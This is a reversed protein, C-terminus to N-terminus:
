VIFQESAGPLSTRGKASAVWCGRITKNDAAGTVHLAPGPNAFLCCETTSESSPGFDFAVCASNNACLGACRPVADVAWRTLPIKYCCFDSSEQKCAPPPPSWSKEPVRCFGKFCDRGEVDSDCGVPQSLVHEWEDFGTESNVEVVSATIHWGYVPDHEETTRKVYINGNAIAPASTGNTKIKETGDPLLVVLQSTPPKGEGVPPKYSLQLYILGDPGFFPTDVDNFKTGLDDIDYLDSLSGDSHIAMLSINGTSYPDRCVSLVDGKDNQESLGFMELSSTINWKMDGEPTFAILSQNCGFPFVPVCARFYTTGDRGPTISQLTEESGRRPFSAHSWVLSGNAAYKRIPPPNVDTKWGKLKETVFLSGDETVVMMDISHNSDVAQATWVINGDSKSQATINDVRNVFVLDQSTERGFLPSAGARPPPTGGPEQKIPPVAASWILKGTPSLAYFTGQQPPHYHGSASVGATRLFVNGSGDVNIADPAFCTYDSYDGALPCNVPMKWKVQGNADLAYFTGNNSAAVFLTGDQGLAATEIADSGHPSTQSINHGV